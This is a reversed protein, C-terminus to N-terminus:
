ERGAWREVLILILWVLGLVAAGGLLCLAGAAANSWGYVIGIAVGGVVVLFAMVVLVLRLDERRRFARLDQLPRLNKPL